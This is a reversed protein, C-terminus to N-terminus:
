KTNAVKDMEHSSSKSKTAQVNLHLPRSKNLNIMPVMLINSAAQDKVKVARDAGPSEARTRQM